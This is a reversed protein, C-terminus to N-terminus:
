IYIYIGMYVPELSPYPICLVCICIHIYIYLLKPAQRCHVALIYIYIYIYTYLSSDQSHLAFCVALLEKASFFGISHLLLM